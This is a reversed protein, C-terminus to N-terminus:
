NWVGWLVFAAWHCPKAGPGGKALCDRQARCLATAPTLHDELFHGYFSQMLAQTRQDDVKWQSVVLRPCGALFAARVLGLVGEGRLLSGHATECASFVGLDAPLSLRGLEAATLVEAGGLILGTLQPWEPHFFGHCALHAVRLSSQGHLSARFATLTADQRLLVRCPEGPLSHAFM